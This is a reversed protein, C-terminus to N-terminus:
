EDTPGMGLLTRAAVVAVVVAVGILLGRFVGGIPVALMWSAAGALAAGPPGGIPLLVLLVVVAAVVMVTAETSRRAVAGRAAVLTSVFLIGFLTAGIPVVLAVLLWQVAPDGSGGAGPRLGAVLMGGIGALVAIAATPSGDRWVLARAHTAVLAGVGALAAGAAIVILGDSVASALGDLAPSSVVFDALLILAAAIVLVPFTLRRV